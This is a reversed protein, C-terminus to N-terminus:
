KYVDMWGDMCFAHCCFDFLDKWCLQRGVFLSCHTSSKGTQYLQMVLFQAAIELSAAKDSQM